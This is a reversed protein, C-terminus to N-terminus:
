PQWKSTSITKRTSTAAASSIVSRRSWLLSIRRESVMLPWECTARSSKSKCTRVPESAPSHPFPLWKRDSISGPWNQASSAWTAPPLSETLQGALNSTRIWRVRRFHPAKPFRSASLLSFLNWTGPQCIRAKSSSISSPPKVRPRTLATSIRRLM